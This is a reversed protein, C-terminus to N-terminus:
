GKDRKRACLLSETFVHGTFSGTPSDDNIVCDILQLTITIEYNLLIKNKLKPNKETVLIGAKSFFSCRTKHGLYNKPKTVQVKKKKFCVPAITLICGFENWSKM